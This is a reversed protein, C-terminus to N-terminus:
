AAVGVGSMMAALNADRVRPPVLDLLPVTLVLVWLPLTAPPVVEFPAAVEFPAVVSLPLAM